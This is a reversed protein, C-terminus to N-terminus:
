FNRGIEIYRKKELNFKLTLTDYLGLTASGNLVLGFDTVRNDTFKVTNTDDGGTLTIIIGQLGSSGFPLANMTVPGGDGVVSVDQHRSFDNLLITDGNSKAVESFQLNTSKNVSLQLNGVMSGSVASDVDDLTIKAITTDNTTKDLFTANTVASNLTSKFNIPM